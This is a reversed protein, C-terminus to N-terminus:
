EGARVSSSASASTNGRENDERAEYAADGGLQVKTERQEGADSLVILQIADDFENTAGRRREEGFALMRAFEERDTLPVRVRAHMSQM